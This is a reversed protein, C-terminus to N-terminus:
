LPWLTVESREGPCELAPAKQPVPGRERECSRNDWGQGATQSLYTNTQGTLFLSAIHVGLSTELAKFRIATSPWGDKQELSRPDVHSM